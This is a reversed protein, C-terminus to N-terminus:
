SDGKWVEKGYGDPMDNKWEGEYSYGRNENVLVGKGNAQGEYTEGEYYVGLATILRGEGHPIGEYFFGTFLSGDPFYM